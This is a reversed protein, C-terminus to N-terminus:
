SRDRFTLVTSIGDQGELREADVKWGVTDDRDVVTTAIETVRDPEIDDEDIAIRIRGRNNSAEHVTYGEDTFATELQEHIASM